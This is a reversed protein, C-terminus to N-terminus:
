LLGYIRLIDSVMDKGIGLESAIDAISKAAMYQECVPDKYDLIYQISKNRLTRKKTEDYKKALHSERFHLINEQATVWELNDVRNDEKDCNKHNVQTLNDPNEIFAQAVLRHIYSHKATKGDSGTLALYLYGNTHRYQKLIRGPKTYNHM